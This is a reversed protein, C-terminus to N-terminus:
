ALLLVITGLVWVLATISLRISNYKRWEKFLKDLQRPDPSKADSKSVDKAINLITNNLPIVTQRNM